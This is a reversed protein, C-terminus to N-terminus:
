LLKREHTHTVHANTEWVFIKRVVAAAVAMFIEFVLTLFPAFLSSFTRSSGLVYHWMELLSGLFLSYVQVTHFKLFSLLPFSSSMCV